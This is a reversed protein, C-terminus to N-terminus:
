QNTRNTLVYNMYPAGNEKKLFKKKEYKFYEVIYLKMLDLLWSFLTTKANLWLIYRSHICIPEKPLFPHM